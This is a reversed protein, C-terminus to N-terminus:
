NKSTNYGRGDNYQQQGDEAGTPLVPIMTRQVTQKTFRLDDIEGLQEM